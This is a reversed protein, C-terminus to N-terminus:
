GVFLIGAASLVGWWSHAGHGLGEMDGFVCQGDVEQFGAGAGRLLWKM